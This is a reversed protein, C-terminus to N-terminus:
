VSRLPSSKKDLRGILAEISQRWIPGDTANEDWLQRLESTPELVKRLAEMAQTRFPALDVDPNRAAFSDIPFEEEDSAETYRTGNVQRDIYAAAVIVASGTDSDLEESQMAESFIDEIMDVPDDTDEIDDMYDFAADNEFYGTGWAGM